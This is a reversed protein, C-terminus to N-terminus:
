ETQPKQARFFASREGALALGGARVPERVNRWYAGCLRFLRPIHRFIFLATLKLSEPSFDLSRCFRARNPFGVMGKVNDLTLCSKIPNDTVPTFLECARDRGLVKCGTARCLTIVTMAGWSDSFYRCNQCIKAQQFSLIPTPNKKGYDEGKKEGRRWAPSKREIPKLM